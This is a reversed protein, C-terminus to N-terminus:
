KVGAGSLGSGDLGLDIIKFCHKRIDETRGNLAKATINLRDNLKKFYSVDNTITLMPNARDHLKSDDVIGVPKAMWAAPNGGLKKWCVGWGSKATAINLQREKLFAKIKQQESLPYSFPQKYTVRGNKRSGKLKSADFPEIHIKRLNPSRKFIIDLADTKQAKVYKKVRESLQENTFAFKDEFWANVLFVKGIDIAVAKLATSKSYPPTLDTLRKALQKAQYQVVEQWSAETTQQFKHLALQFESDNIEIQM